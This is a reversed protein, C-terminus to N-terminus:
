SAMISANTKTIWEYNNELRVKEYSLLVSSSQSDCTPSVVAGFFVIKVAFTVKFRWKHACVYFNFFLLNLRVITM